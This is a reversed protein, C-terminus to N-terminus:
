NVFPFIHNKAPITKKVAIIIGPVLTMSFYDKNDDVQIFRISM